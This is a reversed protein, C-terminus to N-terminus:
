SAEQSYGLAVLEIKGDDCSWYVVRPCRDPPSRRLNCWGAKAGDKRILQPSNPSPRLPGAALGVTRVDFRCIVLSCVWAVRDIPVRGVRSRIDAIFQSTMTYDSLPHEARERHPMHDWQAAILRRMEKPLQGGPDRSRGRFRPRHGSSEHGGEALVWAEYRARVVDLERVRAKAIRKIEHELVLIREESSLKPPKAVKPTFIRGLWDLIEEGYEGSPDYLLPHGWPDETVGPRYVRVAGGYVHMKSPLLTALHTALSNTLFVIPTNSGVIERVVMAPVAPMVGSRRATLVVIWFDRKRHLISQALQEVDERTEPATCEARALGSWDIPENRSRSPSASAM